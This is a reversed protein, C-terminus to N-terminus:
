LPHIWKCGTEPINSITVHGWHNHRQKNQSKHKTKPCWPHMDLTWNPFRSMLWVNILAWCANQFDTPVHNSKCVEKCKLWSDITLLFNVAMLWRQRRRMICLQSCWFINFMRGWFGAYIFCSDRIFLNHINISIHMYICVCTLIEYWYRLFYVYHGWAM